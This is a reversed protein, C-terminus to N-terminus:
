DESLESDKPLNLKEQRIKKSASFLGGFLKRKSRSKLESAPFTPMPPFDTDMEAAHNPTSVPYDAAFEQNLEDKASASKKKPILEYSPMENDDANGLQSGLLFAPVSRMRRRPLPMTKAQSEYLASAASQTQLNEITSSDDPEPSVPEDLVLSPFEDWDEVPLSEEVPAHKVPRAVPQVAPQMEPRQPAQAESPSVQRVAPAPVPTAVSMPERHSSNPTPAAHFVPVGPTPIFSPMPETQAIKAQAKIPLDPPMLDEDRYRHSSQVAAGIIPYTRVSASSPLAPPLPRTLDHRFPEPESAPAPPLTQGNITRAMPGAIPLLSDFLSGTVPVQVKEIPPHIGLVDDTQPTKQIPHVPATAPSEVQFNTAPVPRFSIKEEPERTESERQPGDAKINKSWSSSYVQNMQEIPDEKLFEQHEDEDDLLSHQRWGTVYSRELYETPYEAAEDSQPKAFLQEKIFALSVGSGLAMLISIVILHIRNPFSPHEPLRPADVVFVNSLTQAEKMKGEMVKQRLHDLATSLTSEQQELNALGIATTPFQRIDANIQALRRQIVSAQAWLDQAEGQAKLMDGILEGRTSDAIVEGDVEEAGFPGMVRAKEQMINAKVQDIQAQVERVKPNHDTLSASLFSHLQQLRYLEDQLKTMTGNQGLAAGRLAAEPSMGLMQRYRRVVNEKGQAEAQLQALKNSLEMRSGALDDSERKISVTANKSEYQSKQKRIALLQAEIDGMQRSLFKTRSIQEEKNLDRSADQFAKVVVILSEQAIVPEGWSFQIGILDTGPQNKAKIFASGDQYYSDWEQKSKIKLRKLEEPHNRNFYDWLAVSIAESKLIGMTNLVPNSSTSTTTQMAYYQEPEVYRNTIASDKIIVTAKAAYKPHFMTFTYVLMWVAVLLSVSIILGLNRSIFSGASKVPYGSRDPYAQFSPHPAM